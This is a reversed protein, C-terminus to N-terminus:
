RDQKSQKQESGSKEQESMPKPFTGLREFLAQRQRRLIKGSEADITITATSLDRMLHTIKWSSRGDSHQLVAITSSSPSELGLEKSALGLAGELGLKIRDLELAPHSQKAKEQEVTCRGKELTFTTLTQSPPSFFGFSLLGSGPLVFFSCLYAKRDKKRWEKFLKEKELAALAQKPEIM